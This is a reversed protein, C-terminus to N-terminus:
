RGTGHGVAVSSRQLVTVHDRLTLQLGSKESKLTSSSVPRAPPKTGWSPVRTIETLRAVLVGAAAGSPRVVVRREARGDNTLVASDEVVADACSVPRASSRRRFGALAV